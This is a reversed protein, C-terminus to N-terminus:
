SAQPLAGPAQDSTGANSDTPEVVEGELIGDHEAAELVEMLGGQIKIDQRRVPLQLASFHGLFLKLAEVASKHDKSTLGIIYLRNWAATERAHPVIELRRQTVLLGFNSMAKWDRTTSEAIGQFKCFKALSMPKVIGMEDTILGGLASYTIFQEFVKKKYPNVVTQTNTSLTKELM